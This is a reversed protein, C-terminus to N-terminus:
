NDCECDYDIDEGCYDCLLNKNWEEDYNQCIANFEAQHLNKFQYKSFTHYNLDPNKDSKLTVGKYRNQYVVMNKKSAIRKAVVVNM